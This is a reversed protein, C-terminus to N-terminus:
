KHELLLFRGAPVAEQLHLAVLEDEFVSRRAQEPARVEVAAGIERIEVVALLRRLAQRLDAHVDHAEV